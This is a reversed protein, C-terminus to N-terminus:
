GGHAPPLSFFPADARGVRERARSRREFDGVAKGPPSRTSSKRDIKLANKESALLFHTERHVRDHSRAASLLLDGDIVDHGDVPHGFLGTGREVQLRQKDHVVALDDAVSGLQAAVLDGGLDEALDSAGLDVNQLVLVLLDSSRRTPFSLLYLRVSAFS